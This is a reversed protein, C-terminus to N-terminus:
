TRHRWHTPRYYVYMVDEGREDTIYWLSRRRRLPGENRVGDADDIKTYVIVGEPATDIPLWNSM